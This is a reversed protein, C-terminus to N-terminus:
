RGEVIPNDNARQVLPNDQSKILWLNDDERNIIPYDKDRAVLANDSPRTIVDAAIVSFSDPSPVDFEDSPSVSFYAM